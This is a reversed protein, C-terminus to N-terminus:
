EALKTSQLLASVLLIRFWCQTKSIESTSLRSCLRRAVPKYVGLLSHVLSPIECWKTMNKVDHNRQTANYKYLDSNIFWFLSSNGTSIIETDTLVCIASRSGTQSCLTIPTHSGVSLIDGSFRVPIYHVWKLLFNKNQNLRLIFLAIFYRM